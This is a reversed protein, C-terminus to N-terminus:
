PLVELAAWIALAIIGWGLAASILLWPGPRCRRCPPQMDIALALREPHPIGPDDARHLADFTRM